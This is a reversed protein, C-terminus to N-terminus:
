AYNELDGNLERASGPDPAISPAMDPMLM